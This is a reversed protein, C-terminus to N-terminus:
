RKETPCTSMGLVSYLPCSRIAGTFLPVLGIWGWAGIMGKLTMAILAIGVIIRIIQDFQGVNTKMDEDGRTTKGYAKFLVYHVSAPPTHCQSHTPGRSDATRKGPHTRRHKVHFM